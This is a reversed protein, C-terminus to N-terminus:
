QLLGGTPCPDTGMVALRGHSLCLSLHCRGDAAHRSAIETALTLPMPPQGLAATLMPWLDAARLAVAAVAPCDACSRGCPLHGGLTVVPTLTADDSL